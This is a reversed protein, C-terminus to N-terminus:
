PKKPAPSSSTPPLEREIKQLLDTAEPKMSFPRNTNLIFKLLTGANAKDAKEYMIRGLYYATDPSLNGAQAAQQMLLAARDLDGLKYFVWGLTSLADANKPNAQYNATAYEKARQKKSEDSQECLALALNNSAAFSSPSQLHADQFWTEAKDYQKQWLAVVGLLVKADLSKPDLEMAKDGERKAVDIQGTELAWQAVFLHTRLDKPAVKLANNMWVVANKHDGFQEYYRGLIAEPTLVSPDIAKADKLMKLAGAADGEQFLARAMRQMAGSDKPNLELLKKLFGEAIKWQERAEAVAGLGSVTQPELIKKRQESATFTKLLDSAKGYLLAADTIRREQLAVNGLIVYSEPDNPEDVVAKELAMRALYAQNAQVFFQFMIIQAPPLDPHKKVAEKLSAVAGDFDRNKFKEIATVVEPYNAPTTAAPKAPATPETVPQGFSPGAFGALTSLTVIVSAFFLYRLSRAM